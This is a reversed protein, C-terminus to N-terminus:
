SRSCHANSTYPDVGLRHAIQRKVMSYGIISKAVSDEYETRKKRGRLGENARELVRFAGRPLSAVTGVPDTILGKSAVLPSKAAQAAAKAFEAGGKIEEIEALARLEQVRMRLM